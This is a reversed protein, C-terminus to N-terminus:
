ELFDLIAKTLAEPQEAQPAHGAKKVIEIRADPMLNKFDEAYRPPCIGDSEGWVLLSPMRARHLRKALGRNPIPWLYKAAVRSSKARELQFAIRAEDSDPLTAMAQAAPSSTDHFMAEALENPGAIFFDLVPYEPNWLGVSAILVLKSFREPQVAALEAAFMGGLSHGILPLDRLGTADLFDLYYYVLDPLDLLHDDGTSEGFGPHKPAYVTYNAALAELFPDPMYGGAGHLFLLPPGSGDKVLETQFMGNRVDVTVTEM